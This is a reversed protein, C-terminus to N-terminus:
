KEQRISDAYEIAEHIADARLEAVNASIHVLVNDKVIKMLAEVQAALARYDDRTVIKGDIMMADAAEIQGLQAPTDGVYPPNSIQKTM